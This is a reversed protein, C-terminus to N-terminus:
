GVVKWQSFYLRPNELDIAKCNHQASYNGHIKDVCIFKYCVSDKHVLRYYALSDTSGASSEPM